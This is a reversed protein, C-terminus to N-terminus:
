LKITEEIEIFLMKTSLVRAVVTLYGIVPPTQTLFGDTGLFVPSGRAWNWSADSISQNRIPDCIENLNCASKTLGAISWSSVSSSPDSYFYKDDINSVIRLASLNQGAQLSPLIKFENGSDGKEGRFATLLNVKSTVNLLNVKSSATLLTVKNSTLRSPIVM